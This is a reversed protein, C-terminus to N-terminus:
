APTVVKVNCNRSRLAEAAVWGDGGNNGLGVLIVVNSIDGGMGLAEQYRRCPRVSRVYIERQDEVNTSATYILKESKVFVM